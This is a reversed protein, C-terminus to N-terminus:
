KRSVPPSALGFSCLNCYRVSGPVFKVNLRAKVMLIGRMERCLSRRPVCVAIHCKRKPTRQAFAVAFGRHDPIHGQTGNTRERHFSLLQIFESVTKKFHPKQKSPPCAQSANCKSTMNTSCVHGRLGRCLRPHALRLGRYGFLRSHPKHSRKPFQLPSQTM